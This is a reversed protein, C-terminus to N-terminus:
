GRLHIRLILHFEVTVQPADPVGTWDARVKFAELCYMPVMDLRNGVLVQINLQPSREVKVRFAYPSFQDDFAATSPAVLHVAQETPSEGFDAEADGSHGTTDHATFSTVPGKAIMEDQPDVEIVLAPNRIGTQAISKLLRNRQALTLM